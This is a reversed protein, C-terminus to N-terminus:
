AEHTLAEAPEFAFRDRVVKFDGPALFPQAILLAKEAPPLPQSIMGQLFREYFIRNGEPTLYDFRIKQNFRRISAQDLDTMRNTTCILIGRFREMRTLFENTFSIERSRVARERSFLFTDAEDLGLVTALYKRGSLSTCSLHHNFYNELHDQTANLYLFEVLRVEPESLQFMKRFINLGKEMESQGTCSRDGKQELLTVLRRVARGQFARPAKGLGRSLAGTYDEMDDEAEELRELLRERRPGTLHDLLFQGLKHIDEKVVWQVVALTESDIMPYRSLLRVM